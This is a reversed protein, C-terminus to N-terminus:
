DRSSQYTDIKDNFWPLLPLLPWSTVARGLDNLGTVLSLLSICSSEARDREGQQKFVVHTGVPGWRGRSETPIKFCHPTTGLGADANLEPILKQLVGPLEDGQRGFLVTTALDAFIEALTQQHLHSNLVLLWPLFLHRASPTLFSRNLAVPLPM